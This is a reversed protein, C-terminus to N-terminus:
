GLDAMRHPCPPERPNQPSLQLPTHGWLSLSQPGAWASLSARTGQTWEQRRSLAWSSRSLDGGSSCCFVTHVDALLTHSAIMRARTRECQSHRRTHVSTHTVVSTRAHLSLQRCTWACAGTYTCGYLHTCTHTLICVHTHMYFYGSKVSFTKQGPAQEAGTRGHHGTGALGAPPGRTTEASAGAAPCRGESPRLARAAPARGASIAWGRGEQPRGAGAAAGPAQRCTATESAKVREKPNTHIATVQERVRNEHM